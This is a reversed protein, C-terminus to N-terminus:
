LLLRGDEQRTKIGIASPDYKLFTETPVTYFNKSRIIDTKTPVIDIKKNEDIVYTIKVESM